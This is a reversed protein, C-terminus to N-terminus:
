KKSDNVNIANKLTVNVIPFSAVFKSETKGREM